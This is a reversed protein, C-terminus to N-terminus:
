KEPAIEVTQVLGNWGRSMDRVGKVFIKTGNTMDGCQLGDFRTEASVDLSIGRGQGGTSPDIMGVEKKLTIVLHPCSETVYDVTGHLEVGDNGGLKRLLEATSVNSVNNGGTSRDSYGEALQLPTSGAKNHANLTAGHDVLFQVVDDMGWYAAGHLATEGSDNAANIDNGLALALKVAAFGEAATTHSLSPIRGYGAATMLATTHDDTCLSPDAHGALLAKMVPTDGANAALLFPTAGPMEVRSGGGGGGYHPPNKTMRANPDAGHALLDNVLELKGTGLGARRVYEAPKAGFVGTTATEWAGAIWHLPTYGAEGLNPDAGNALLLHALEWHGEHTATLLVSTGDSAADNIPAGSELLVKLADTANNRAAFLIASYSSAPSGMGYGGVAQVPQTKKTRAHIDAGKDLLARVVDAHNQGAAWMLATQGREREARQPDAGHSLLSRVADVNGTRACTMLVTEGNPLTANADAGAELLVKVMTAGGNTCALSLPMVGLHTAANVNAGAGILLKAIAVDDWHAAWHLATAGDAQPENVDAHKKLLVKVAAADQKKVADVVRFESGTMALSALLAAPWLWRGVRDASWNAM